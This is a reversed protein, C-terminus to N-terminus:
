PKARNRAFGIIDFDSIPIIVVRLPLDHREANNGPFNNRAAILTAKLETFREERISLRHM